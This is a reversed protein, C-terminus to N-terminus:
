CTPCRGALWTSIPTSPTGWAPAPKTTTRSCTTSSSPRTVAPPMQWPSALSTTRSSTTSSTPARPARALVIGYGFQNGNTAGQVTFGDITVNDATVYFPTKGGNYTGDVISELGSRTRADVGHQAGELILAKNITVNEAYIGADALITDGPNAANVAAQITTFTGGSTLDHVAPALRSELEELNLPPRIQNSPRGTQRKVARPKRNVLQRWWNQASM